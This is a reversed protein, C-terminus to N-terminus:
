HRPVGIQYLIYHVVVGIQDQAQTTNVYGRLTMDDSNIESTTEGKMVIVFQQMVNQSIIQPTIYGRTRSYQLISGIIKM